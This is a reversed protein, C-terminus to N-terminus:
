VEIFRLEREREVLGYGKAKAFFARLGEVAREDFEYRIRHGLYERALDAPWRTREAAEHVIRDIRTANARRQRDLAMGARRIVREINKGDEVEADAARALWVAFVFPLGTLEKWAAGLDLQYPYRVAPRQDTVVKDGILLVTEPWDVLKANAVHDRANYATLKPQVSFMERMLIQMLVVSTHSDTDCHVERVTNMPVASYLRVTLTPGDCGLMGVPLIRLDMASKQYDISSCLATDVDGRELMGALESPVSRVLEVGALEDLGDILPLTNLFSVVGVRAVDRAVKNGFHRNRETAQRVTSEM